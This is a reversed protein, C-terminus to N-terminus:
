ALRPGEPMYNAAVNILAVFIWASYALSTKDKNAYASFGGFIVLAFLIGLLVGEIYIGFRRIELFKVHNFFKLSFTKAPSISGSVVSTVLTVESRKPVTYLTFKSSVGSSEPSSPNVDALHNYSVWASGTVKLPHILGQEDLAYSHISEWGTPDIRLLYDSDQDNRFKQVIWYHQYYAIPPLNRTDRFGETRSLVQEVSLTGEADELVLFHKKESFSVPTKETLAQAQLSPLALAFSAPLLMLLCVLARAFAVRWHNM